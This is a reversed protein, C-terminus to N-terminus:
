AVSKRAKKKSIQKQFRIYGKEISRLVAMKVENRPLKVIGFHSLEVVIDYIVLDWTVARVGKALAFHKVPIWLLTMPDNELYPHPVKESIPRFGMSKYLPSLSETSLVYAEEVFSMLERGVAKFLTVVADTGQMKPHIALRCIEVAGRRKVTLNKTGKYYTEFPFTQDDNDSFTLRVTGIIKGNIKACLIISRADAEDCMDDPTSHADVKHASMYALHRLKLVEEYDEPSSVYDVRVAKAMKRHSFGAGTATAVIDEVQENGEKSSSIIFQGLREKFDKGEDVCQLGFMLCDTAPTVHRVVVSCEVFGISPLFVKANPLKALPLLHHNSLSSRVLMGGSNINEVVFHLNTNPKFPDRVLIYPRFDAKIGVRMKRDVPAGERKGQFLQIGLGDNSHRVIRPSKFESIMTVGYYIELKELSSPVDESNELRVQIGTANYDILKVSKVKGSYFLKVSYQFNRETSIRKLRRSEPASPKKM